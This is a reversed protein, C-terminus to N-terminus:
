KEKIWLARNEALAFDAKGPHSEAQAVALDFLFEPCSMFTERSNTLWFAKGHQHVWVLFRRAPSGAPTGAYIIPITTNSPYLKSGNTVMPSDTCVEIMTSLARNCFSDDQIKEGFVYLRALHHYDNSIEKQIDDFKQIASPGKSKYTFEIEKSYLWEIYDAVVHPCDDPLDIKRETGEKWQKNLAAKFFESSEKVVGEHVLFPTSPDPGAHVTIM